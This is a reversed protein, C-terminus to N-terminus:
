LFLRAIIVGRALSDQVTLTEAFYNAMMHLGMAYDPHVGWALSLVSQVIDMVPMWEMVAKELGRPLRDVQNM